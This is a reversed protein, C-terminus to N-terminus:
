GRQREEDSLVQYERELEREWALLDATYIQDLRKYALGCGVLFPLSGIASLLLIILDRPPLRLANLALGILMLSVLTMGIALISGTLIIATELWRRRPPTRSEMQAQVWQNM